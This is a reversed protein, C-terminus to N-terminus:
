LADAKNQAVMARHLDMFTTPPHELADLERAVKLAVVCDAVYTEANRFQIESNELDLSAQKLAEWRQRKSEDWTEPLPGTPIVFKGTSSFIEFQETM